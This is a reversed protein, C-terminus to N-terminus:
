DYIQNWPPWYPPYWIFSTFCNTSHFFFTYLLLKLYTKLEDYVQIFPLFIFFFFLQVCLMLFSITNIRIIPLSMMCMLSSFSIYSVIWSSSSSSSPIPPLKSWFISPKSFSVKQCWIFIFIISFDSKIKGLSCYNFIISYFLYMCHNGPKKDPVIHLRCLKSLLSPLHAPLVKIPFLRVEIQMTPLNVHLKYLKQAASDLFFSLLPFSGRSGITFYNYVIKSLIIFISNSKYIITIPLM